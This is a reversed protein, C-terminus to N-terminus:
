CGTADQITQNWGESTTCDGNTYVGDLCEFAAQTSDGAEDCHTTEADKWDSSGYTDACTNYAAIYDCCAQQPATLGGTECYSNDYVPGTDTPTDSDDTPTTEGGCALLLLTTLIM